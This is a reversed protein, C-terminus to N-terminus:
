YQYSIGVTASNQTYSLFSPSADKLLYQYNFSLTAHDTLTDNVTFGAGYRNSDERFAADSDELNEWLVNGGLNIASTAQWTATYNAYVRETFNSTLGPLFERGFNLAENISSNIRHNVGVSGYYSAVNESDGNAGGKAYDSFYGGAQAQLSLNDSVKATVFPGISLTTYNNEFNQEYRVDSLTMSLGTDISPDVKVTLKPTLTDSQNTLYNYISQSVWLNAHDYGLSLVIDNLDWTAEIGADNQWRSLRVTNSLQGIATPDQQYSFTDHLNFAVDGVFFNFEADSDPSLLLSNYQSHLVYTEYGIGLDLHITNLDSVQWLAHLTASPTLVIDAIRGDKSLGINDNFNATVDAEARVTVPGLRLNYVPNAGSQRLEDAVNEGSLSEREIGQASARHMMSTLTLMYVCLLLFRLKRPEM